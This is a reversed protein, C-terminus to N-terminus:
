QPSWQPSGTCLATGASLLAEAESPASVSSGSATRILTVTHHDIESKLKILDLVMQSVPRQTHTHSIVGILDISPSSGCVSLLATGHAPAESIV